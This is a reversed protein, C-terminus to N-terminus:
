TQAPTPLKAQVGFGGAQRPGVTLSGGFLEVRERMGILGRGGGSSEQAGSGGDDLVEIGLERKDYLLAVSVRPDQAHKLINTLSEQVIRYACVEVSAPLARPSGETRMQVRMGSRGVRDILEVLDALRPSPPAPHPDDLVQVLRRMEVLTERATAEITNLPGLVHAGASEDEANALAAVSQVVIVGVNHAVVDHLERAIRAREDGAAQRAQQEHLDARAALSQERRERHRFAVGVAGAVALAIADVLVDGWDRMRPVLAILAALTAAALSLGLAPRWALPDATAAAVVILFPMLQGFFFAAREVFVLQLLVAVGMFALVCLPARHRWPLVVAFALVFLALAVQRVGGSHETSLRLWVDCQGVVVLALAIPGERRWSIRDMERDYGPAEMQAEAQLM